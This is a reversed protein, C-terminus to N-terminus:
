CTAGCQQRTGFCNWSFRALSIRMIRESSELGNAELIGKAQHAIEDTLALRYTLKPTRPSKCEQSRRGATCGTETSKRHSTCPDNEGILRVGCSRCARRNPIGFSYLARTGLGLALNWFQNGRIACACYCGLGALYTRRTREGQGLFRPEWRCLSKSSHEGIRAFSFTWILGNSPLTTITVPHLEPIPVAVASCNARSPALTTIAARRLSLLSATTRWISDRPLSPRNM